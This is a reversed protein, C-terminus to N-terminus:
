EIIEDLDTGHATLMPYAVEITGSLTKWNTEDEVTAPSALKVNDLEIALNKKSLSTVRVHGSQSLFMADTSGNAMAAYDQISVNATVEPSETNTVEADIPTSFSGEHRYLNILIAFEDQKIVIGMIDNTMNVSSYFEEDPIENEWNLNLTTKQEDINSLNEMDVDLGTAKELLSEALDTSAEDSSSGCALLIASSVFIYLIKKM